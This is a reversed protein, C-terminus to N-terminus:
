QINIDGSNNELYISKDGQTINRTTTSASVQKKVLATLIEELKEHTIVQGDKLSTILNSQINAIMASFEADDEVKQILQQISEQHDTQNTSLAQLVLNQYAACAKNDTQLIESFYLQVFDKLNNILFYKFGNDIREATTLSKTLIGQLQQNVARSTDLETIYSAAQAITVDNQATIDMILDDIFDKIQPRLADHINKECYAKGIERLAMETAKIIAKPLAQNADEARIHQPRTLFKTGGDIILKNTLSNLTGIAMTALLPTATAPFFTALAASTSAFLIAGGAKKLNDNM